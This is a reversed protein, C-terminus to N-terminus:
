FLPVIVARDGHSTEVSELSFPLAEEWPGEGLEAVLGRVATVGAAGYLDLAEGPEGKESALLVITAKEDFEFRSGQMKSIMAAVVWIRCHGSADEHTSLYDVANMNARATRARVSARHKREAWSLVEAGAHRVDEAIREPLSEHAPAPAPSPASM